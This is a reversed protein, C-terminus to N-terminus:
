EDFTKKCIDSYFADLQICGVYGYQYQYLIINRYSSSVQSYLSFELKEGLYAARYLRDFWEEKNETLICNMSDHLKEINGDAVKCADKNVYVIEYDSVKGDEGLLVKGIGFGCPMNGYYKDAQELQLEPVEASITQIGHCALDPQRNGFDEHVTNQPDAILKEFEEIPMPKYYFYGQTYRCGMKLLHKEQDKEEVGEVVIPLKIQKAMNIVSNLIGIGMEQESENIQLFRMDMKLADVPVSKLMNLSSYGSGFDDMMVIFGYERLIKAVEIIKDGSDAYSGETIEIKLLEKPVKYEKLLAILYAPVDISYIDTRSINISIPVPSYGKDLCSSLWKCVKRWIIQDLDTIFGKKELIPIFEGPPIIGKDKHQWRVLSEGGVIKGKTIDCQPQIFFTFEDRAIAEQIDSLMRIEEEVREDMESTYECIRNLYNGLINSIAITARDYMMSASVVEETLYYIGFAPLYGATNNKCRTEVKIQECLGELLQKECTTFVAFNDGGLYGIIGGQQETFDKLVESIRMLLRDGEKRGHIKNYLRFHEIDIAMMCASEPKNEVLYDEVKEFFHNGFYLGTLPSVLEKMGGEKREIEMFTYGKMM